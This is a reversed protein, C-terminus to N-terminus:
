FEEEPADYAQVNVQITRTSTLDRGNWKFSAKLTANHTGPPTNPAVSISLTGHAGQKAITVAAAAIGKAKEPAELAVTVDEQLGYLRIIEFSLPVNTDGQHVTIANARAVLGLPSATISLQTPMAALEVKRQQPENAKTATEARKVAIDKAKQAVELQSALEVSLKELQAKEAALGEAQAKAEKAATEVAAFKGALNKAKEDIGASSEKNAAVNEKAAALEKELRDALQQSVDAFTSMIVELRKKSTEIKTTLEQVMKELEQKRADAKAAAQPNRRYAVESRTEVNLRYSGVPANEKLVIEMPKSSVNGEITLPKAEVNGPLGTLTVTVNGAFGDRRTVYVPVSLKGGRAMELPLGSGVRVSFPAAEVASVALSLERTVRAQLTAQSAIAAWVVTGARAARVLDGRPHKGYGIVRITGNWQPADEAAALILDASNKGAEITTPVCQVGAPLNEVALRIAGGFGDRRLAVVRLRETGGRRLLPSWVDPLFAAGKAEADPMVPFAVLSFDPQEPRVILRYIRWPDKSLGNFHDIVLVRYTGSEPATFRIAPDDSRTDWLLGGVNTTGDDQASVEQVTEKGDESRTIRQLVLQPDTALGLRHSIVEIRYVSGKTAEFEYFDEDLEPYFQGMVECPPTITQSEAATNNPEAEVTVPATAYGIRVSNSSGSDSRLRYNFSGVSSEAPGIPAGVRPPPLSEVQVPITVELRELQREGLLVDTPEGGPLNRGYVAFKETAGPTGAPPFVFDIQPGTRVLLQYFYDNGGRFLFDHLKIFYAGSAPATVDLLADGGANHHASALERGAADLFKIVAELRSDIRQARCEIFVRQGQILDIRIVDVDAAGNVRGSLVSRLPIPNAEETTANPEKEIAHVRDDVAFVRPNSVGFRGRARMEYLGPEVDPAITLRFRNPVPQPDKELPGPPEAVQEATIGATSFLLASTEDLDSGELTVEVTTGVQGGPPFCSLVRAAPFQASVQSCAFVVACLPLGGFMRRPKASRTLRERSSQARGRRLM